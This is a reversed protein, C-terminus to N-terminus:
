GKRESLSCELTPNWGTFPNQDRSPFGDVVWERGDSPIPRIRDGVQIDAAPSPVTLTASSAVHTGDNGAILASSSSAIFGAMEVVDPESWDEVTQTPNYADAVRRARLRQFRGTCPMAADMDLLNM